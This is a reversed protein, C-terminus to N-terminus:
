QHMPLHLVPNRNLISSPFGIFLKSHNTINATNIATAIATILPLSFDAFLFFSSSPSFSMRAFRGSVCLSCLM